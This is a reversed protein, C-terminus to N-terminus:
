EPAPMTPTEPGPKDRTRESGIAKEAKTKLDDVAEGDSKKPADLKAKNFEPIKEKVESATLEMESVTEDFGKKISSISEKVNTKGETTGNLWPLYCYAATVVVLWIFPSIIRKIPKNWRQGDKWLYHATIPPFFFPLGQVINGRFQIALLNAVGASLRILNLLVVSWVAALVVLSHKNMIVGVIAVNLFILSISYAMENIQRFPTAFLNCFQRYSWIAELYASAAFESPKTVVAPKKRMERPVVVKYRSRSDEFEEIGIQSVVRASMKTIPKLGIHIPKLGIQSNVADMWGISRSAVRNSLQRIAAAAVGPKRGATASGSQNWATAAQGGAMRGASALMRQKTSDTTPIVM